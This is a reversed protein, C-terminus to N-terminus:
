ASDGSDNAPPTNRRSRIASKRYREGSGHNEGRRGFHHMADSAITREIAATILAPNRVDRNRAFSRATSSKRRSVLAMAGSLVTNGSILLRVGAPAIM